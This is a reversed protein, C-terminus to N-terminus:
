INMWNILNATLWVWFDHLLKSPYTKLHCACEMGDGLHLDITIFWTLWYNRQRIQHQPLNTRSLRGDLLKLGAPAVSHRRPFSQRLRQQIKQHTVPFANTLWIILSASGFCRRVPHRLLPPCIQLIPCWWRFPLSLERVIPISRKTLCVFTRLWRQSIFLVTVAASSVRYSVIWLMHLQPPGM